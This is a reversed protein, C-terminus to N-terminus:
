DWSRPRARYVSPTLSVFRCLPPSLSYNEPQVYFNFLRVLRYRELEKNSVALENSTLFFPTSRPGNTTKVELLTSREAQDGEGEFSRIDYGYGDGLEHAVWCVGKALDQRGLESLRWREHMFMFQEGHKGMRRNRADREAASTSVRLTEGSSEPLAVPGDGTPPDCTELEQEPNPMKLTADAGALLGHLEPLRELKDCVVRQLASQYNSAPKYGQLYPLGFHELVASINQHKYEIAGGSRAIRKKLARRHSAKTYDKGSHHKHLMDFYDDVIERNERDNWSAQKM